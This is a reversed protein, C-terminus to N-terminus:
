DQLRNKRDLAKKARLSRRGRMQRGEPVAVGLRVGDTEWRLTTMGGETSCSVVRFMQGTHPDVVQDGPLLDKAQM